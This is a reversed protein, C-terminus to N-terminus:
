QAQVLSYPSIKIWARIAAIIIEIVMLVVDDPAMFLFLYPNKVRLKVFGSIDLPTEDNTEAGSLKIAVQRDNLFVIDDQGFGDDNNQDLYRTTEILRKPYIVWGLIQPALIKYTWHSRSRTSGDGDEISQGNFRKDKLSMVTFAYSGLFKFAVGTAEDVQTLRFFTFFVSAIVAVVVFFIFIGLM